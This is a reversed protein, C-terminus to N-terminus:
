VNVDETVVKVHSVVDPFFSKPLESSSVTQWALGVEGDVSQVPIYTIGYLSQAPYHPDELRIPLM